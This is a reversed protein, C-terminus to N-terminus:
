ADDNIIGYLLAAVGLVGAFGRLASLDVQTPLIIIDLFTLMNQVGLFTFCIAAWLLLRVNRRGYARFLLVACAASTIACLAYVTEAM